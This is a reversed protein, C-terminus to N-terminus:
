DAAPARTLRGQALPRVVLANLDIVVHFAIAVWLASTLGYLASLGAGVLTTALVGRWGQYRHVAGFLLTAVITGAWASGFVLAVLLPVFLRFFLEESVGASISLWIAPILDGRREPLVDPFSGIAFARKGRHWRWRTIAANVITGLAMGLLLPETPLLPWDGPVVAIAEPQLSGLPDQGLLLLGLLAPVYFSIALGLGWATMRRGRSGQEVSSLRLRFTRGRWVIALVYVAVIALLVRALM